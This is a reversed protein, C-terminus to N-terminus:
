DPTAMRRRVSLQVNLEADKADQRRGHEERLSLVFAWLEAGADLQQLEVDDDQVALPLRHAPQGRRVEGYEVVADLRRNAGERRDLKRPRARVVGDPGAVHGGVDDGILDALLVSPQDHDQHIPRNRDFLRGDGGPLNGRGRDLGEARVIQGGDDGRVVAGHLGAGHLVQGRVAGPQQVGDVRLIRASPHRSCGLPDHVHRPARECISGSFSERQRHPSQTSSVIVRTASATCLVGRRGFSSRKM